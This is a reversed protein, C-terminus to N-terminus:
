KKFEAASGQYGCAKCRATSPLTYGAGGITYDMYELSEEGAHCKPCQPIYQKSGCGGGAVNDLEEDSLEGTKNMKAFYEEAAEKSLEVDNEKALALLEEVSEAKGAKEMLEQSFGNEM